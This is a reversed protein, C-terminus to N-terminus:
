PFTRPMAHCSATGSTRTITKARLDDHNTDLQGVDKESVM